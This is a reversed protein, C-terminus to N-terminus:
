RCRWLVSHYHHSACFFMNLLQPHGAQECSSLLPHRRRCDDVRSRQHVDSLTLRHVHHVQYPSDRKDVKRRIVDQWPCRFDTGVRATKGHPRQTRQSWSVHNLKPEAEKAWVCACGLPENRCTVRAPITANLQTKVQDDELVLPGKQLKQKRQRFRLLILIISDTSLDSYYLGIRRINSTSTPWLTSRATLLSVRSHFLVDNATLTSSILYIKCLNLNFTSITRALM